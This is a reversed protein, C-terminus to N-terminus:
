QDGSWEEGTILLYIPKLNHVVDELTTFGRKKYPVGQYEFQWYFPKNPCREDYGINRPWKRGKKKGLNRRNTTKPGARLNVSRNDMKNRNIHDVEHEKPIDGGTKERVVFRHIYGVESNNLYGSSGDPRIHCAPNDLSLIKQHIDKDVISDGNHVRGEVHITVTGDGNDTYRNPDRRGM